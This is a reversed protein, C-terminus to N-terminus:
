NQIGFYSNLAQCLFIYFHNFVLICYQIPPLLDPLSRQIPFRVWGSEFKRNQWIRYSFFDHSENRVKRWLGVLIRFYRFPNNPKLPYRFSSSPGGSISDFRSSSSSESLDLGGRFRNLRPRGNTWPISSLIFEPHRGPIKLTSFCFWSEPILFQAKNSLFYLSWM